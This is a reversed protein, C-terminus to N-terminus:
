KALIGKRITELKQKEATTLSSDILLKSISSEFIQFQRVHISSMVIIQYINKRPIIDAYDLLVNSVLYAQLCRGSNLHQQALIYYQYAEDHKWALNKLSSDDLTEKIM